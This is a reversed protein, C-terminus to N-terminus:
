ILLSHSLLYIREPSRPAALGHSHGDRSSRGTTSAEVVLERPHPDPDEDSTELAFQPVGPPVDPPLEPVAALDLSAPEFSLRPARGDPRPAWVLTGCLILITAAVPALQM